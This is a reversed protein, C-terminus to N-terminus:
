LHSWVGAERHNQVVSDPNPKLMAVAAAAVAAAEAEAEAEALRWEQNRVSSQNERFHNASKHRILAM